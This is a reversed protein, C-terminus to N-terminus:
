RGAPPSSAHPWTTSCSRIRRRTRRSPRLEIAHRRHRPRLALGLHPQGHRPGDAPQGQQRHREALELRGSGKTFREPDDGALIHLFRRPAVDGQQGPNGRIYVKMDGPSGDTIGHAMAPAPPLEKKLRELEAKMSELRTKQEEDLQAMMGADTIAYIGTDGFLFLQIDQRLREESGVAKKRTIPTMADSTALAARAAKQFAEAAKRVEPGAEM